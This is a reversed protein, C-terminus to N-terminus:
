YHIYQIIIVHYHCLDCCEWLQMSYEDGGALRCPAFWLDKSHDHGHSTGARFCSHPGCWREASWGAVSIGWLQCGAKFLRSGCFSAMMGWGSNESLGPMSCSCPCILFFSFCLHFPGSRCSQKGCGWFLFLSTWLYSMSAIACLQACETWCSLFNIYIYIHTHKLINRTKSEGWPWIRQCPFAGPLRPYESTRRQMAACRPWKAFLRCFFFMPRAHCFCVSIM